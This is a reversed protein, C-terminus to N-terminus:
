VDISNGTPDSYDQPPASKTAEASRGSATAARGRDRTVQRIRLASTGVLVAGAGIAIFWGVTGAQTARVDITAPRGVPLGHATYLRATVRVTGNTKADVAANDTFSKQAEITRLEIPQVTLRQSNASRFRMQVRVANAKASDGSAPLLNRITVPFSVHSKPTIVRSTVSIRVQDFADDFRSQQPRLFAEFAPGQGRWRASAARALDANTSPIVSTPDVLLDVWTAQSTMFRRLEGLQTASLERAQDADTYRLKESWAAPASRLLQTLTTRRVWPANVEAGAGEAESASDILRVRGLVAGAPQTVAQIWASSLLREQIHVPTDQPDPGPGGGTAASGYSVIPSRSVGRLLPTTEGTSAESLLLAAPKLRDAATVTAADAVGQSPWLLLPLAATAPVNKAAAESQLLIREQGAHTLAAIDVSAYPLRYGDRNNRSLRNFVDLWRSADRQGSGAAPPDGDTSLVQYGNKMAQVEEILEPDIAYSLDPANAARLLADLRGDPALEGALHDDAFQALQDSGASRRVLSPTSTMAVVSTMQLASSPKTSVLPVLVRARGVATRNGNQLVHVGMLYVGQSSPFDLESVKVRLSFRATEGRELYPKGPLFLDDYTHTWRAGLPENSVSALAQDFGERDTIPAQNRWFYAQLRYLRKGSTNTVTGTVAITGDRQPLAPSFSDLTISVLAVPEIAYTPAPRSLTPVLGVAVVLSALLM